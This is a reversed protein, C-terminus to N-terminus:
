PICFCGLSVFSLTAWTQSGSYYFKQSYPVYDGCAFDQERWNMGDSYEGCGAGTGYCDSSKWYYNFDCKLGKATCTATCTSGATTVTVVAGCKDYSCVAKTSTGYAPCVACSAGCHGADDDPWCAGGCLHYGSKCSGIVCSSGSCALSQIASGTPCSACSQGCLKFGSNCAIQCSVGDCSPQGNALGPCKDCSAGCHDVSASSVCAGSCRHFGSKCECSHKVLDCAENGGCQTDVGCGPKCKGSALDCYSLGPCGDKNCDTTQSLDASAQDARRADHHATPDGGVVTLDADTGPPAADDARSASGCALPSLLLLVPLITRTM